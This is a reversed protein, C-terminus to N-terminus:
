GKGGEGRAAELEAIRAVRRKHELPDFSTFVLADVLLKTRLVDALARHQGENSIGCVTCADALSGRTLGLPVLHEWILTSTDIRYKMDLAGVGYCRDFADYIFAMDLFNNHGVVVTDKLVTQVVTMADHLEISEKRWVGENFGNIQLAEESATHLHEPWVKVNWARWGPLPETTPTREDWAWAPKLIAIETIDHVLPDLGTFELDVYALPKGGFGVEDLSHEHMLHPMSDM